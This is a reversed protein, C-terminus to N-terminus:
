KRYERVIRELERIVGDADKAVIAEAYQRAKEGSTPGILFGSLNLFLERKKRALGTLGKLERKVYPSKPDHRYFEGM